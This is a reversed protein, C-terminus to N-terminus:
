EVIMKKTAVNGDVNLSYYYLGAAYAGLKVSHNGKTTAVKETSIIRGMVDTVTFVASAADKVLSFNVTSEKTFPNPTNQSLAVGTNTNEKIGTSIDDKVRFSILHHEFGYPATYALTPIFRYNWSAGNNYRVDQPLIYSQSYDCAASAFNCDFYNPFTGAGKEEYSTFLFTNATSEVDQGLTYTYGPKFMVSGITLKNGFTAFQVPLKFAKENYFATSTDAITLLVKFVYQGAPAVQPSATATPAAIFNGTLNYGIRKFSVTDVGGYNVPTVTGAFGSTTLNAATQNDYVTVVLTDVINPNPHKRDYAYVISMSDIYIPATPNAAVWGTSPDSFAVSKFDVMEALHHVWMGQLSGGFNALGASDPFLYNANLVSPASFLNKVATGYNFWAANGAATKAVSNNQNAKMKTFDFSKVKTITKSAPFTQTGLVSNNSGQGFTASTLLVAALLTYIKKM